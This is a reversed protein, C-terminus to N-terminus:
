RKQTDRRRLSHLSPLTTVSAGQPQWQGREQIEIQGTIPAELLERLGNWAKQVIKGVAQINQCDIVRAEVVEQKARDGLPIMFEVQCGNQGRVCSQRFELSVLGRKPLMVTVCSKDSSGQPRIMMRATSGPPGGKRLIRLCQSSGLWGSVGSVEATALVVKQEVTPGRREEKEPM